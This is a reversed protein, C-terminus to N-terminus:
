KRVKKVAAEGPVVPGKSEKQPINFARQIAHVMEVRRFSFDFAIKLVTKIESSLELNELLEEADKRDHRAKVARLAKQNQKAKWADTKRRKSM